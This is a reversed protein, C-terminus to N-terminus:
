AVSFIGGLISIAEARKALVEKSQGDDTCVVEVVDRLVTSVDSLSSLFIASLGTVTKRRDSDAADAGEGDGNRMDDVTLDMISKAAGVHDGLVSGLDALETFFARLPVSSQKGLMVKAKASYANGVTHLMDRGLPERVLVRAEMEAFSVFEEPRGDVYPEVRLVLLSALEAVRSKNFEAVRAKTEEEGGSSGMSLSTAHAVDGIIPKFGKPALMLTFLVDASVLQSDDVGDKGHRHYLLRKEDDSLVQFAEGVKKFESGDSGTNRDPHTRLAAKRYASKIEGVTATPPVGLIDYLETDKPTPLDSRGGAHANGNEPRSAGPLSSENARGHYLADRERAYEAREAEIRRSHEAQTADDAPPAGVTAYPILRPNASSSAAARQGAQMGERIKSVGAATGVVPAVVAIAIGGVVGELTGRLKGDAPANRYAAIPSAILGAAGVGLGGLFKGMGQKFGDAGSKPKAAERRESQESLRLQAERVLEEIQDQAANDAM